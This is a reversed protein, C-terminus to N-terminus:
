SGCCCSGSCQLQDRYQISHNVMVSHTADHLPRVGGDPKVIAEMAAVRLKDGYKTAKLVSMKSPEMRGLLEEERFKEELEKSSMQGSIYNEAIPNFDTEDLRRHKVKPPFVQPTRPLPSEVGVNVGSAFSDESDVLCRVDPYIFVELWQSLLRLFFPQGDDRKKADEPDRLLAAIQGRVKELVAESFPSAQMKGTVLKFADKRVDQIAGKVASQLLLFTSAALGRMTPSRRHGRALPSWRTPSCLGFGDVLEHVKGDWEVKIPTGHNGCREVDFKDEPDLAMSGADISVTEVTGTATSDVDMLSGARDDETLDVVQVAPPRLSSGGSSAMGQDAGQKPSSGVTQKSYGSSSGRPERQQGM